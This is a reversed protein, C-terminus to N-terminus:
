THWLVSATIKGALRRLLDVSFANVLYLPSHYLRVSEILGNINKALITVGSVPQGAFIGSWELYTRDFTDEERTFAIEDYMARTADFFARVDATGEIAKPLVSAQLTVDPAFAAGFAELTPRRIVEAWAAGPETEISPSTVDRNHSETSM